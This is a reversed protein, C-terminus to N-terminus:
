PIRVVGAILCQRSKSRAAGAEFFPHRTGGIERHRGPLYTAAGRSAIRMPSITGIKPTRPLGIAPAAGGIPGSTPQEFFHFLSQGDGKPFSIAM